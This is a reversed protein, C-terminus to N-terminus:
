RAAAHVVTVLAPVPHVAGQDVRGGGGLGDRGPVRRRQQGDRTQGPLRCLAPGGHDPEPDEQARSGPDPDSRGGGAAAAASRESHTMQRVPPPPPAPSVEIVADSLHRQQRFLINTAGAVFGRVAVDSLLHHQQLAMYPLCLYGQCRSPLPQQEAPFGCGGSPWLLSSPTPFSVKTFIALPLGYQDEELGSVLGQTVGGQGSVAHPQVTIPVGPQSDFADLLEEEKEPSERPGGEDLVGPDLTEWDSESSVPSASVPLKLLHNGGETSNGSSVSDGAPPAAGELGQKPDTVDSVSVSVFEEAGSVTEKLPLQESVSSRPKYHSSDM